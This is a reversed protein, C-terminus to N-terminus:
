RIMQNQRVIREKLIRVSTMLRQRQIIMRQKPENTREGNVDKKVPKKKRKVKRIELTERKDLKEDLREMESVVYKASGM